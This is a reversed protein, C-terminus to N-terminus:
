GTLSTVRWQGDVFEYSHTFERDGASLTATIYTNTQNCNVITYSDAVVDSPTSPATFEPPTRYGGGRYNVQDQDYNTNRCAYYQNLWTIDGTQYYNQRYQELTPIIDLGSATPDSLPSGSFATSSPRPLAPSDPGCPGAPYTASPQSPSVSPSTCSTDSPTGCGPSPTPEPCASSDDSDDCSPSAALSASSNTSPQVLASFASAPTHKASGSPTILLFFILLLFIGIGTMIMLIAKWHRQPQRLLDDVNPWPLM